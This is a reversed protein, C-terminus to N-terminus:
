SCKLRAKGFEKVKVRVRYRESPTGQEGAYVKMNSTTISPPTLESKSPEPVPILKYVPNRKGPLRLRRCEGRSQMREAESITVWKHHTGCPLRLSAHVVSSTTRM